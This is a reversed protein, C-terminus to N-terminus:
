AGKQDKGVAPESNTGEPVNIHAGEIPKGDVHVEGPLAPVRPTESNEIRENKLREHLHMMTGLLKHLKEVEAQLTEIKTRKREKKANFGRYM